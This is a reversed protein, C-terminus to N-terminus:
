DTQLELDGEGGGGRNLTLTWWMRPSPSAGRSRKGPLPSFHEMAIDYPLAPVCEFGAQSEMGKMIIIICGTVAQLVGVAGGQWQCAVPQPEGEPLPLGQGRM